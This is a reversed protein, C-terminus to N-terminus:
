RSERRPEIWSPELAAPIPAFSGVPQHEFGSPQESHATFIDAASPHRAYAAGSGFTLDTLDLISVLAGAETRRVGDPIEGKSAALSLGIGM